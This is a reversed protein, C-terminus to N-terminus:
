APEPHVCPGQPDVCVGGVGGTVWLNPLPKPWSPDVEFRPATGQAHMPVLHFFMLAMGLGAAAAVIRVYNTKKKMDDKKVFGSVVEKAYFKRYEMMNYSSQGPMLLVPAFSILM